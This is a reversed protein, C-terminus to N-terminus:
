DFGFDKMYTFMTNYACFSRELSKNLYKDGVRWIKFCILNGQQKAALIINDSIYTIVEGDIKQLIIDNNIGQKCYVIISKAMEDMSYHKIM